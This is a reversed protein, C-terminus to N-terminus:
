GYIEHYESVRIPVYWYSVSIEAAHERAADYFDFLRVEGPHNFIRQNSHRKIVYWLENENM